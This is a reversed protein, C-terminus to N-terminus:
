TKLRAYAARLKRSYATDTRRGHGSNHFTGAWTIADVGRPKTRLYRAIALGMVRDQEARNAKGWAAPAGGAEGWRTKGFQYVGWSWQRVDWRPPLNRGGSEVEAFARLLADADLTNPRSKGSVHNYIPTPSQIEAGNAKPLIDSLWRLRTSAAGILVAGVALALLMSLIAKM